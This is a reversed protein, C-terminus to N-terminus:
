PALLLPLRTACVAALLLTLTLLVVSRVRDGRRFRSLRALVPRARALGVM